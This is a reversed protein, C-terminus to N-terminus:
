VDKRVERWLRTRGAAFVDREAKVIRRKMAAIKARDTASLRSIAM